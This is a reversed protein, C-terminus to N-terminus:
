QCRCVTFFKCCVIERLDRGPLPPPPVKETRISLCVRCLNCDRKPVTKPVRILVFMLFVTESLLFRHFYLICFHVEQVTKSVGLPTKAPRDRGALRSLWLAPFRLMMGVLGLGEKRPKLITGTIEGEVCVPACEAM